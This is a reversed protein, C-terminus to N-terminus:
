LAPERWVGLDLQLIWMDFIVDSPYM